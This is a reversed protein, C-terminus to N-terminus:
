NNIIVINIIIIFMINIIIIFMINILKISWFGLHFKIVIIM